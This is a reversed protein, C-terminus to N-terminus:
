VPEGGIGGQLEDSFNDQQGEGEATETGPPFAERHDQEMEDQSRNERTEVTGDDHHTHTTYQGGGTHHTHHAHVGTQPHPQTKGPHTETVHKESNSANHPAQPDGHKQAHKEHEPPAGNSREHLTPKSAGPRQAVKGHPIFKGGKYPM